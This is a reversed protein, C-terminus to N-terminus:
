EPLEPLAELLSQYRKLDFDRGEIYLRNSEDALCLAMMKKAEHESEGLGLLREFHKKVFPTDKSTMQQEIAPILQVVIENEEM